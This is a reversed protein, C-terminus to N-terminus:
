NGLLRNHEEGGTVERKWIRKWLHCINVVVGNVIKDRTRWIIHERSYIREDRIRHQSDIVVGLCFVTALISGLVTSASHCFLIVVICLM